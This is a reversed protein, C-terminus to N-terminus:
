YNQIVTGFSFWGDGGDFNPTFGPISFRNSGQEAAIWVSSSKGTYVRASVAAGFNFRDPLWVMPSIHRTGSLHGVIAVCYTVAPISSPDAGEPFIIWCQIDEDSENTRLKKVYSPNSGGINPPPLQNLMM